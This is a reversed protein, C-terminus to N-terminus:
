VEVDSDAPNPLADRDQPQPESRLKYVLVDPVADEQVCVVKAPDMRVPAPRMDDCLYWFGDAARIHAWWHGGLYTPGSHVMVAYLDYQAGTPHFGPPVIDSAQLGELPCQIHTFDKGSNPQARALRIILIPPLHVEVMRFMGQHYQHIPTGSGDRPLAPQSGAGATVLTARECIECEKRGEEEVWDRRGRLLAPLSLAVGRPQGLPYMVKLKQRVRLKIRTDSCSPSPLRDQTIMVCQASIATFM